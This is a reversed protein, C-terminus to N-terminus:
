EIYVISITQSTPDWNVKAGLSESVFRLPVFVRSNKIIAPTDLLYPLGNILVNKKDVFLSICKSATIYSITDVKKSEEHISFEVKAGIFEGLLRFPLYSRSQYIFPPDIKKPFGNVTAITSGINMEIRIEKEVVEISITTGHCNTNQNDHNFKPWGKESLSSSGKISLIKDNSTVIISGDSAIVPSTKIPYLNTEWHITGKRDLAVILSEEPTNNSLCHIYSNNTIFIPQYNGVISNILSGDISFFNLSNSTNNYAVVVDDDTILPQFKSTFNRKEWFLTGNAHISVLSNKLNIVLTNNSFFSIGTFDTTEDQLRYEWKVLGTEESLCILLTEKEFRDFHFIFLNNEGDISLKAINEYSRSWLKNGSTNVAWIKRTYAGRKCDSGFLIQNNGLALHCLNPFDEKEWLLVGNNDLAYLSPSSHFYINGYEDIVPNSISFNRADFSWKKIGNLNIALLKGNTYGPIGQIPIFINSNRDLATEGIYQKSSEIGLFYTWKIYPIDITEYLSIVRFQVLFISSVLFFLFFTKKM